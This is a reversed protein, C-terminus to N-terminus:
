KLVKVILDLLKWLGLVGLGVLTAKEFFTEFYWSARINEGFQRKKSELLSKRETLGM